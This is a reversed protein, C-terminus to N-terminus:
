KHGGTGEMNLLQCKGTHKSLLVSELDSITSSRMSHNFVTTISIHIHPILSISPQLSGAETAGDGEERAYRIPSKDFASLRRTVNVLSGKAIDALTVLWSLHLPGGM